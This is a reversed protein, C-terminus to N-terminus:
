MVTVVSNSQVIQAAHTPDTLQTPNLHITCTRLVRVHHRAVTRGEVLCMYTGSHRSETSLVVLENHRTQLYESGADVHRPRVPTMTVHRPRVSTMTSEVNFYWTADTTSHDDSACDASSVPCSLSFASGELLESSTTTLAQGDVVANM